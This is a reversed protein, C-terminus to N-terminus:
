ETDPALSSALGMMTKLESVQLNYEAVAGAWDAKSKAVMALADLYELTTKKGAEYALKMIRYEENTEQLSSSAAAMKKKAAELGAWASEFDAKAKLQAAQYDYKAKDRYRAQQKVKYISEGSGFFPFSVVLGYAHGSDDNGNESKFFDQMGMLAVQPAYEGKAALVSQTASKEKSQLAKLEPQNGLVFSLATDKAYSFDEAQLTILAPELPHQPDEGMLQNLQAISSQYEKQAEAEMKISEALQSKNRLLSVYAVKGAEYAAEQNKVQEQSEKVMEAYAKQLERYYLSMWWQAQIEKVLELKTVQFEHSAAEKEYRAKKLQASNKGGTYLPLMLSFDQVWYNGEPVMAQYNPMSVPLSGFVMPMNGGTWFTNASLRPYFATKAMEVEDGMALYDMEASKLAPQQSLGKEIAEALTLGTKVEESWALSALFLFGIMLMISSQWVPRNLAALGLSFSVAKTGSRIIAM